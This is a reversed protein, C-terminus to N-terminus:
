LYILVPCSMVKMKRDQMPQEPQNLCDGVVADDVALAVFEEVTLGFGLLDLVDGYCNEAAFM